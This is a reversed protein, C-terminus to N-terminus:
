IPHFIILVDANSLGKQIRVQHSKPGIDDAQSGVFKYADTNSLRYSFSYSSTHPPLSAEVMDLKEKEISDGTVEKEAVADAHKMEIIDENQPTLHDEKRAENTKNIAKDEMSMGFWSEGNSWMMQGCGRKGQDFQGKFTYGFKKSELCGNGHQIDNVFDGEYVDGNAWRFVGTGHKFGNRFQGNYVHGIALRYEGDGDKLDNLYEGEYVDGNAWKFVGKGNKKRDEFFGM